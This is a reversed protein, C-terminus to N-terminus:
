WRGHGLAARPRLGGGGGRSPPSAGSAETSRGCGPCRRACPSRGRQTTSSRPPCTRLHVARLASACAKVIFDNVSLKVAPVTANIHKRLALLADIELDVSVRFHPANRKAAQLPQAIARRMSTLPVAEVEPEPRHTTLASAPQLRNECERGWRQEAERADAM